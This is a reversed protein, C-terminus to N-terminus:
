GDCSSLSCRFISVLPVSLPVPSDRVLRIPLLDSGNAHTLSRWRRRRATPCGRMRTVWLLQDISSQEDAMVLAIPSTLLSSCSWLLHNNAGECFMSHSARRLRWSM